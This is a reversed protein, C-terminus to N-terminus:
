KNHIFDHRMDNLILYNHYFIAKYYKNDHIFRYKIYFEKHWSFICGDLLIKDGQQLIFASSNQEGRKRVFIKIVDHEQYVTIENSPRCIAVRSPLSTFLFNDTRLQTYDETCIYSYATNDQM